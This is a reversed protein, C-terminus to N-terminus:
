FGDCNQDVSNSITIIAAKLDANSNDTYSIYLVKGAGIAASTYSGVNGVTDVDFTQFAGSLNTAMKLDSTSSDRYSVYALDATNLALSCDTGVNGSSEIITTTWGAGANTVYHLDNTSTNKHAIHAQQNSDVRLSTYNGVNGSVEPEEPVGFAGGKNSLYRLDDTNEYQYAIHAAGNADTQVSAYRGPDGSSDRTALQWDGATGFAHKLDNNTDDYYAMHVTGDPAVAISAYRGVNATDDVDWSQFAGGQLRTYRLNNDTEDRHAMHVVGGQVAIGSWQGVNNSNDAITHYWVGERRVAYALATNTTDHYSIHPVGTEDVAVHTHTGNGSSQAVLEDGGWGRLATSIHLLSNLAPSYYTVDWASEGAISISTYQPSDTTVTQFGWAGALTRNAVILDGGSEYSAYLRNSSDIDLSTYRGVNGSTQVNDVAWSGPNGAATSRAYRLDDSSSNYTLIHPNGLSDLVLANWQGTSSATDIAQPSEWTGEKGRVYRLDNASAYRYAIHFTGDAARAMSTYQGNSGGTDINENVWGGGPKHAFKLNTNSSDYYAIKPNGAPDVVISNYQGVNAANDVQEPTGWSGFTGSVHKLATASQDYYAVHLTGDAAMALAAWKGVNAANDVIESEWHEGPIKRSVRLATASSDYHAVYLTGDPARVQSGYQGANGIGDAIVSGPAGTDNHIRRLDDGPRDTWFLHAKGDPGKIMDCWGASGMGSQVIPRDYNEPTGYPKVLTSLRRVRYIVTSGSVVTETYCGELTGDSTVVLGWRNGAPNTSSNGNFAMGLKWLAGEKRAHKINRGSTDRYFIHPTGDPGIDLDAYRGVDASAADVVELVWSGSKNTAYKLDKSTVYYYAAHLAGAADVTLSIWQGTDNLGDIVTPGSWGGATRQRYILDNNTDDYYMAHVLGDPTVAVAAYKGSDTATDGTVNEVMWTGGANTGYKLDNNTDDYWVAHAAGAADVVMRAYEGVDGVRDITAWSWYGWRNTAYELDQRTGNYMVAHLHGDADLAASVFDDRRGGADVVELAASIGDIPDPVGPKISGDGDNCDTGGCAADVAGDGDTDKDKTGTCAATANCTSSSTCVDGDDCPTGILQNTWATQSVDPDCQKCPTGPAAQGVTWCTGAINCAGAKVPNSCGGSGDCLDDTCSISDSCDYATGGCSGASCSDAKTCGQGDDCAAGDALSTWANPSAASDCAECSNLPNLTGNTYCALSALCFGSVVPFDCTGDGKCVDQTCAFGDTCAYTTGQCSGGSCQDSHTCAQGDDCASLNAPHVCAGASCQEDTCANGDDPCAGGENAPSAECQDKSESCVGDNCADASASCDRATGGCTGSGCKDNVTCFLFDNCGAGELPTPDNTCAGTAVTCTDQTCPNNDDCDSNLACCGEVIPGACAGGTCTDPATCEKADDCPTGDALAVAKCSDVSEDCQGKNCGDAFASCDRDAGGCAGSTCQDSVTCWAGDNCAAGDAVDTWAGTGVGPQCSRCANGPQTVGAAYCTGGILCTADILPFDCGGAGDCLNQTCALSDDCEYATGVCAGAACQDGSTCANGEDCTTGDPKNSWSTTSVASTCAQCANAPNEVGEDVCAGDILCGSAVPFACGGDGDCENATCAFGDTCEYAAGSCAGASCADDKTCAGGDDCTTGDDAASWATQATAAACIQCPDGDASAGDAVCQGDILCWEDLIPNQCGGGGDCVDDTCAVGDSCEFAEGACDGASCSDAKTCANDDNCGAGDAKNAWNTQSVGPNCEQCNNASNVTGAGVCAGQVLCSTGDVPYSCGGAGDCVNETCSLGDDCVYAAGVCVGAACADAKTCPGGDDCAAGDTVASWASTSVGPQCSQCANEPNGAGAALCAGEIVCWGDVPAVTCDGDGDCADTTCVLGDDCVYEKGACDGAACSDGFTCAEGDDCASTNPPHACGGAQCKDATCVNGDDTCAGGENAASKECADSTDNCTGLNCEDDQESCDRPAGGCVGAACTDNVSCYQGDDCSAADMAAAEQTCDGTDPACTDQTCPNQDDCDADKECCGGLAGGVCAGATCQDDGTCVQEDDCATGEPMPDAVCADADEDCVGQNCQDDLEGCDRPEGLCEGGECVTDVTCFAGDNCPLTNDVHTCGTATDCADDTCPNTDDCDVPAGACVDGNCADNMSCASGDECPTGTPKASWATQSAAPSCTLCPNGASTSEGIYCVGDILCADADVTHTCGGESDCADVTCFLGDDCSFPDGGCAGDACADEQTCPDDDDCPDTNAPHVCAGAACEDSTCPNDDDDCAAGDELPSWASADQTPDCVLCPNEPNEEGDVRCEGGALCAGFVVENSCAGDGVCTDLTCPHGDDCEYAVGGCAGLDCADTFTCPDGDDCLATNFPHDCLGGGCVDDTCGNEDTDCPTGDVKAEAVCADVGDDCVGQTCPGDKAACSRAEGTCLGGACTDGITCYQGDNCGIGNAASADNSCGGSGADCTDVTCPNGDDCDAAESCCGAVAGGTCVGAICIDGSTCKQGDDCATGTSLPLSECIGKTESCSGELCGVSLFSCDRPAGTCVTDTCVDSVTCFLGDNCPEANPLYVCGVDPACLDDTCPNGDNCNTQSGGQCAGDQCQEGVTCADEDACLTGAPLDTFDTNSVFPKCARCGNEPDTAGGEFCAGDVACFGATPTNQCAGEVCADETCELADACDIASGACAGASCVDDQTCADGDDCAGTSLSLHVCGTAVDCSDQTCPNKDDCSVEPLACAGDTCTDDTCASLDECEWAFVCPKEVFGCGGSPLLCVSSGDGLDACDFGDPCPADESCGTTCFTGEGVATCTQWTPCDGATVCADCLGEAPPACETDSVPVFGNLCEGVVCTPEDNLLACIAIADGITGECSDGCVGCHEDHVYKGDVLFGDDTMGNCDDDVENCTEVTPTAADCFWGAEGKCSQFGDCSGVGEIAKTCKEGEGTLGDDALSNCDDDVGNCTETAPTAATCGIWGGALDCTEEGACIGHDNQVTCPRAEGANEATCDCTGNTPECFSVGAADEPPAEVCDYGDPCPQDASCQDACAMGEAVPLCRGALCDADSQCPDCSKDLQPICLSVCDPCTSQVFLCLFGDPCEDVCTKSCLYAGEGQLCYGSDCDTNESCPCGFDAPEGPPCEGARADEPAPVDPGAGDLPLQTDPTSVDDTGVPPPSTGDDSEGALRTQETETPCGILASCLAGVMFFRAQRDFM